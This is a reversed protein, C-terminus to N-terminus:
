RESWDKPIEQISYDGGPLSLNNMKEMIEAQNEEIREQGQKLEDLTNLVDEMLETFKEIPTM